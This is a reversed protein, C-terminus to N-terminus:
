SFPSIRNGSPRAPLLTVAAALALGSVFGAPMAWYVLIDRAIGGGEWWIPPALMAATAVILGALYGLVGGWFLRRMRAPRRRLHHGIVLLVAPIVFLGVLLGIGDIM